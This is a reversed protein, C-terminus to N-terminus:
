DQLKYRGSGIVYSKGIHLWQGLWLVPLLPRFDKVTYWAPGVFGEVQYTGSQKSHRAYDMWHTEHHELRVSDALDLLPGYEAHPWEGDGYVESLIRLRRILARAIASFEPTEVWKEREKLKVPSVFDLQLATVPADWQVAWSRAQAHDFMVDPLTSAKWILTRDGHYLEMGAIETDTQAPRLASVRVLRNRWRTRGMGAEAGQQVAAVIAPLQQLATAGIWTLEFAWAEGQQITMRRDRLDWIAYAPPPADGMLRRISVSWAPDVAPQCLRGFMCTTPHQCGNRCRTPESCWFESLCWLLAMRLVDGKHAPVERTQLSELEFRLRVLPLADLIM